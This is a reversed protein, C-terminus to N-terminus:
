AKITGKKLVAPRNCMVLPNSQAHLDIGKGFPMVEQKAYYPQGMTNVAEIFDGPSYIEQMTDGAGIPIFRCVTAPILDTSGVRATYNIWNIDAFMFGNRQQQQLMTNSSYYRYAEKVSECAIFADWFDDGCIAQVGTFPTRGLSFGMARYVQQCTVKVDETPTNSFDFEFSEETIGFETFWNYIVTSNDPEYVVGQIAGVRHWELTADIADKMSQLRNNVLTSISQLQALQANADVGDSEMGFQRIGLVEDAKVTDYEPLHPVPFARIKRKERQMENTRTGRPASTVLSLKGQKEEVTAIATNISSKKFLGMDGLKTHIPPLKNIATTMSLYSFADQNFIDLLVNSM